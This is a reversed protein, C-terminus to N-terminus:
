KKLKVPITSMGRQHLGGLLQPAPADRDLEMNPFRDLLENIAVVMEQKAVEM